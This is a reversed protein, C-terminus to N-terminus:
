LDTKKSSGMMGSMGKLANGLKAFYVKAEKRSVEGDGDLDMQPFMEEANGEMIDQDGKPVADIEEKSLIGNQDKDMAMVMMNAMSDGLTDPNMMNLAEAAKEPNEKADKLQEAMNTLESLGSLGDLGDLGNGGKGGKPKAAVLALACIGAFRFLM